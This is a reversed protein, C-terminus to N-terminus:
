YFVICYGGSGDGGRRSIVGPSESGGGGAGYGTADSGHADSGGAGGTGMISGGGRGGTGSQGAHGDSALGCGIKDNRKGGLGGTAAGGTDGKDGGDGGAVTLTDFVTSGGDDGAAGSNGSGGAGITVTYGSGAVVTHPHNVIAAGSGGGGGGTGSGTTGGGAGGGGVMTVFVKTVGTPATFTGSSTFEQAGQLVYLQHNTTDVKITTDNVKADLYGANSDGSDSKVYVDTTTVDDFELGDEASNVKVVKGAQGTYASPDVDTLELFTVTTATHSHGEIDTQINELDAGSLISGDDSSSWEKTWSITVAM